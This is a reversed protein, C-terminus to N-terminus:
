LHNLCHCVRPFAKGRRGVSRGRGGKDTTFLKGVERKEPL